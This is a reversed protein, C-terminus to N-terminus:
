LIKGYLYKKYRKKKFIIESHLIGELKFGNKILVKESAKNQEYLSARIKKLKKKKAIKLIEKIALTTLGKNWMKKEGIFYSIDASKHTLNVPGLKINGIHLLNSKLFIGYLHENKSNNKNEIFKKIRQKTHKYFRQETYQQVKKDNMWKLYKKSVNLDPNLKRLTIM